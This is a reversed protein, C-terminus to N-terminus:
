VLIYNKNEDIEITKGANRIAYIFGDHEKKLDAYDRTLQEYETLHLTQLIAKCQFVDKGEELLQMITKGERLQKVISATSNQLAQRARIAMVDLDYFASVKVDEMQYRLKGDKSDCSKLSLYLPDHIAYLYWDQEKSPRWPRVCLPKDKGVEWEMLDNTLDMPDIVKNPEIRLHIHDKDGDEGKHKIYQYAQIIHCEYWENLKSLLFPETNYSITSIPKSTGM